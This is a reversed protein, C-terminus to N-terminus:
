LELIFCDIEKLQSFAKDATLLPLQMYQASAAIIADPLKLSYKRKLKITLETIEQNHQIKSCAALMHRIINDQKLTMGKKSLVEMETIFSYAWNNQAFPLLLPNEDLLYIFCNTDALYSVGSM